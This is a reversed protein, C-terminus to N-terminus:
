GGSGEGSAPTKTQAFVEAEASKRRQEAWYLRESLPTENRKHREWSSLALGIVVIWFVWAALWLAESTM